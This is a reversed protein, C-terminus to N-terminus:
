AKLWHELCAFLQEAKIPKAIYDDMGAALCRERDGEMANATMAIIPTHEWGREGELARIKETAEVGGMVPMQMDMLIAAFGQGGAVAEFAERGNVAVSLRYGRRELLHLALKQNVPNDEVLLIPRERGPMPAPASPAAPAPAVTVEPLGPEDLLFCAADHEVEGVPLTFHFCSGQGPSSEAWIQGGQLEVLRRTISLGLGTGGFKRTTSNDAQTFPQFIHEMREAPIGIGTDRVTFHLFSRSTDLWGVAFVISGQETFKIANGVLNVMVQRLRVPDCVIQRPLEDTVEHRLSLHKGEALVALPQITETVLHRLDEPLKEIHLLGAEIKSFDLIDNIITLLASASTKVIGVFERQEADLETELVLDTMGIIGNMPTRIEHSMNALFESKAQNAAEAAEKAQELELRSAEREAVMRVIVRSLAALDDNAERGDLESVPLLSAVVERLSKLAQERIELERRLSDANRQLVEFTPRFELPVDDIPTPVLSEGGPLLVPEFARVRDLTGLWRKLPFWILLLGGLLSALALALATVILRWLGDAIASAAFVLRLVGYDKGGVSITRNVDYLQEAVRHVLWAPAQGSSPSPNTSRLAAGTLDIFAASEFQSRFISKDLTRKITDYDGIVASDSITQAAVEVLMTASRQAEEIAEDYQYQYFLALSGGVFLLLTISYLAYVRTILAQPLLRHLIKV